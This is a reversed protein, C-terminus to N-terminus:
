QRRVGRGASGRPRRGCRSAIAAWSLSSSGAAFLVALSVMPSASSSAPPAVVLRRGGCSRARRRRGPPPPNLSESDGSPSSTAFEAGAFCRRLRACSCASGARALPAGRGAALRPGEAARSALRYILRIGGDRLRGFAEFVLPYFDVNHTRVQGRWVEYKVRKGREEDTAARGPTASHPFVVAVDVYVLRWGPVYICLDPEGPGGGQQPWRKTPPTWRM